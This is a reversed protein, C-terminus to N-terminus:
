GARSAGIASAVRAQRWDGYRRGTGAAVLGAIRMIVDNDVSAPGHATAMREANRVYPRRVANLYKLIDDTHIVTKDAKQRCPQYVEYAESLKASSWCELNDAGKVSM